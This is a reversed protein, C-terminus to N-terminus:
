QRVGNEVRVTYNSALTETVNFGGLPNGDVTYFTGLTAGGFAAWNARATNRRGEPADNGYIVGNSIRFISGSGVLSVGGGNRAHNDYIVGRLMYFRGGSEVRVGGGDAAAASGASSNGSIEGGDLIFLGGANVRVGAGAFDVNTGGWNNGAIRSGENMRLVGGSNVRVLHSGALSSGLAVNNLVLTLDEVVFRTGTTFTINRREGYSDFIVTIDGGSPLDVQFSNLDADESLIVTYPEGGGQAWENLWSLQEILGEGQRPPVQLVGNVVRLTYTNNNLNRLPTFEGEDFIGFQVNGSISGGENLVGSSHVIGNSMLFIGGAEISVGGGSNRGLTAPSSRTYGSIEGGDLILTGGRNVRVGGGSSAPATVTNANGTIISGENMRLTGGDNIRVLHNTNNAGAPGDTSRGLLTVNNELVLTVGEGIAFLNGNSGLRLERREDGGNIIITLGTRDAPFVTQAPTLTEYVGGALEIVYEYNNQAWYRLWDFQQALTGSRGQLFGNEVHITRGTTRLAGFGVDNRLLQATGDNSLAAGIGASSNNLEASTNGHVIGKAMSFTGGDAVRVGGGNGNSRNNSITGGHMYFRGGSQVHVGGGDRSSTNSSITGGHMYLRGGDAVRVGGGDRTSRNDFIMGGHMYFRGGSQIRVGGGHALEITGVATGTNTTANDLITGGNMIFTGNGNVQVGGGGNDAFNTNNRNGRIKAGTNMILTGNPNVRVLHTNNTGSHGALTVNGQLELTVHAPVRFLNGNGSLTIIYRDDDDESGCFVVALNRGTPLLHADGTDAALTSGGDGLEVYYRGGDLAFLRLWELQTSLDGAIRQMVGNVVNMPLRTAPITATREGDNDMLVALTAVMHLSANAIRATNDYISGNAMRFSGTGLVAVGGGNQAENNRITGGIMDFRGGSVNVGGGNNTGVIFNNSIEGGYLIFTGGSSVNVGGGGNGTIKSTENMRFTGGSVVVLRNTNNMGVRAFNRGVLTINDLELTVGSNVTFLAGQSDLRIENPESETGIIVIRLNTKGAPLTMPASDFDESLYITYTSNDLAFERLWALQNYVTGERGLVVGNEVHITRNINAITRTQEGNDCVLQAAVGGLSAWNGFPRTNNGYIIGNSMRFIGAPAHNAAAGTTIAAAVNVGGGNQAVNGSITGGLMDFRGGAAVHVGGGNNQGGMSNNLIEGGNLIFMGRNAVHVGAGTAATIYVNGTVVSGANMILTGGNDVRVLSANNGSRGQLTVNSDLVLTIGNPVNFLNGNGLTGIVRRVNGYGRIIITLDNRGTPLLQSAAATAFTTINEALRVYVLYHNGSQANARLWALQEVLSTGQAQSLPVPREFAFDIAVVTAGVLVSATVASEGTWVFTVATNNRVFGTIANQAAARGAFTGDLFEGDESGMLILAADVLQRLNALTPSAPTAATFRDDNLWGLITEFNDDDLGNVNVLSLHRAAIGHEDFNWQNDYWAGLVIDALPVTFNDETFSETFVSDMGRYIHMIATMTAMNGQDNNLTFVVRYQGTFMERYNGAPARTGTGGVFYYTGVHSTPNTDVRTIVMRATVISEHFTVNWRFTGAHGTIPALVVNGAITEGGTIAIGTLNGRATEIYSEAGTGQRFATVALNWTGEALYAKGTATTWSITKMPENGANCGSAPAFDLDFRVFEETSEPTITRAVGQRDISLSLTGTSGISVPINSPQAPNQCGAFALLFCAAIWGAFKLRRANPKINKM